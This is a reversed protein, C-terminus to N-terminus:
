RGSTDAANGSAPADSEPEATIVDPKGMWLLLPKLPFAWVTGAVVYFPIQLAWHWHAINGGITAAAFTYVVLFVLLLM